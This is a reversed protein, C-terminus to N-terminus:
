GTLSQYLNLTNQALIDDHYRNRVAEIGWNGMQQALEPHDALERLAEALSAPDDPEYLSGADTHNVLEPFAGERPVVIPVGNAWAELAAIGKSEPFVSPLCVVHVSQLFAIKGARDPSGAYHFRGQLPGSAFRREISRLYARDDPGLYGAAELTFDFDPSEQALIELADTLLHLGKDHCIRSFYGIRLVQVAIEQRNEPAHKAVGRGVQFDIGSTTESCAGLPTGGGARGQARFDPQEAAHGTLKIGPPIVTIQRRPLDLYDAMRHAFYDNMAVLADARAAARQLEARADSAHPEPLKELFIDEGTLSIVTPVGLQSKIPEVLGALLVNSLQIVDIPPQRRLWALLKHLEKAQKGDHGRLMSVTLEGLQAPDTRGAWRNLWRLLRPHDLWRDLFAPTHRFLASKQQLYVNIGGFAMRSESLNEEDTRLPTYLPQLVVDHGRRSLAAALTNGHMCSGCYMGGAGSILHVIHM